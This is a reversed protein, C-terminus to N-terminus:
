ELRYRALEDCGCTQCTTDTTELTTGCRRCEVVTTQGDDRVFVATLATRLRSGTSKQTSRHHRRM